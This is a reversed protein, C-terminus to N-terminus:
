SILSWQMVSPTLITILHTSIDFLVSSDGPPDLTSLIIPDKTECSYVGLDSLEASKIEESRIEESQIVTLGEQSQQQAQRYWCVKATSNKPEKQQVSTNDEEDSMPNSMEKEESETTETSGKM